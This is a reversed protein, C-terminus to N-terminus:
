SNNESSSSPTVDMHFVCCHLSLHLSCGLSAPQGWGVQLCKEKSTGCHHWLTGWLVWAPSCSNRGRWHSTVSSTGWWTCLWQKCCFDFAQQLSCHSFTNTCVDQRVQERGEQKTVCCQELFPKEDQDYEEKSERKNRPNGEKRALIEKRTEDYTRKQDEKGEEGKTILKLRHAAGTCHRLKGWKIRWGM